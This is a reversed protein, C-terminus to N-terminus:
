RGPRAISPSPPYKQGLMLRPTLRALVEVRAKLDAADVVVAAEGTVVAIVGVDQDLIGLDVEVRDIEM